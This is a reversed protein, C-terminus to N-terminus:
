SLVDMVPHSLQLSGVPQQGGSVPSVVDKLAASLDELPVTDPAFQGLLALGVLHNARHSGDIAKIAVTTGDAAALVLVGEAGTKAIVGLRSLVQADAGTAYQVAWPHDKMTSAVQAAWLESHRDSPALAIKSMGRALGTLTLMPAPAGCGDVSVHEISEECYQELVSLSERQVPHEPSLYNDLDAAAADGNSAAMAAALFGAHKGSCSHAASSPRLMTPAADHTQQAVEAASAPYVAPCRLASRELGAEALIEDVVAQHAGTGTHSGCALALREESLNAGLRLSAIAQLPKIASRPYVLSGPAGLKTQVTGQSDVVVASGAIRSEVMSGRVVQALETVDDFSATRKNM